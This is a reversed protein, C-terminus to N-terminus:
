NILTFLNFYILNYVNILLFHFIGEKSNDYPPYNKSNYLFFIISFHIIFILKSSFCINYNHLYMIRKVLALVYAHVLFMELSICEFGYVYNILAM